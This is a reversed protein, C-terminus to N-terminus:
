RKRKAAAQRALKREVRNPVHPRTKLYDKLRAWAMEENPTEYEREGCGCGCFAVVCQKRFKKLLALLHETTLKALDAESANNIDAAMIPMSTDM